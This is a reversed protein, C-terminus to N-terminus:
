QPCNRAERHGAAVAWSLWRRQLRKIARLKVWCEKEFDLMENVTFDNV